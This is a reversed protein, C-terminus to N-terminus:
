IFLYRIADDEGHVASSLSLSFTSFAIFECICICTFHFPYHCSLSTAAGSVFWGGRSPRLVLADPTLAHLSFVLTLRSSVLHLLRLTFRHQTALTCTSALPLASCSTPLPYLFARTYKTTYRM